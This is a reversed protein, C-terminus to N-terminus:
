VEAAPPREGAVWPAQLQVRHRFPNLNGTPRVAGACSTMLAIVVGFRALFVPMKVEEFHTILYYVSYFPILLCALGQIVEDAFALILLWLYAGIISMGAIAAPVAALLPFVVSGLVLLLCGGAVVGAVILAPNIQGLPMLGIRSRKRKRKQRPRAPEDEDDETPRGSLEAEDPVEELEDFSEEPPPSPPEDGARAPTRAKGPPVHAPRASRPAAETREEPEGGSDAEQPQPARFKPKCQPCAVQRGALADPITLKKECWPWLIRIM